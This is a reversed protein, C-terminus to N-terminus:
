AGFRRLIHDVVSPHMPHRFWIGVTGDQAWRAEGVWGELNALWVIVTDGPRMTEACTIKCGHTSLDVLDAINKIRSRFNNYKIRVCLPHRDACRPTFAFEPEM